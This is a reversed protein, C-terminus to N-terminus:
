KAVSLVEIAAVNEGGGAGGVLAVRDGGVPILRHVMRRRSAQAVTEWAKGDASLRLVAGSSPNLIVRGNVTGAAPSFGVRDSGPFEPGSAWKDAAVDYIETTRGAAADAGLGGLVYVKGDLVTATLARRQFPQPRSEWKPEKASLDLVLTTDHWVPTTGQGRSNWGGVVVLKDGVVVADHSSRPAPLPPLPEWRGTTPDFVAVEASSHNDTPQGPANRPSMGGVRIVKGNHAVLALGQLIPGGPLEEWEGGGLKVRRFTGVVSGTDYSHTKGCHGGYVYLHGGAAVAGLSSVGVPLPPYPGAPEGAGVAAPHELVDVVLTAYHRVESYPKGAMEGGKAEVHKGLVAFRGTGAFGATRGDAGSKVKEKKGDPTTVTVDADAVPKGAALLQFAVRGAQPVPVLELPGGTVVPKGNIPGVVAKPHYVLLYPKADGKALVGYEVSGSVVRPGVGPLPGTLAHPGVTLPVPTEKGDATRVTLKLGAFKASSVNEDPALDESLVVTVTADGKDPVVFVFHALGAAATAASVALALLFRRM